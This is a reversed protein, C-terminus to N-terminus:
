ESKAATAKAPNVAAAGAGGAGGPPNKKPFGGRSAGQGTGADDHFKALTAANDEAERDRKEQAEAELTELYEDINSIGFIRSISEVATRKTIFGSDYAEKTTDLLFKEDEPAPV